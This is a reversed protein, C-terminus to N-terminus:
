RRMIEDMLAGKLKPHLFDPSITVSLFDPAPWNEPYQTGMRFRTKLRKWVDDDLWMVPTDISHETMWYVHCKTWQSMAHYMVNADNLITKQDMMDHHEDVHLIHTPLSLKGSAILKMWRRMADAHNDVLVDIPRNAWALLESLVGVPDSILNFYDLDIDLISTVM